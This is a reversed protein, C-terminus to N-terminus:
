FLENKGKNDLIISVIQKLSEKIDNVSEQTACKEVSKEIDEVKEKLSEIASNRLEFLGKAYNKTENIKQDYIERLAKVNENRKNEMDVDAKESDKRVQKLEFKVWYFFGIFPVIILIIGLIRYMTDLDM